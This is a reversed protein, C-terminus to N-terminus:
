GMLYGRLNGNPGRLFPFKSKNLVQQICSLGLPRHEGLVILCETRVIRGASIVPASHSPLVQRCLIRRSELQRCPASWERPVQCLVPLVPKSSRSGRGVTGDPSERGWSFGSVGWAHRPHLWQSRLGDRSLSAFAAGRMQVRSHSRNPQDRSGEM